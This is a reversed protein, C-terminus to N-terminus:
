CFLKPNLGFYLLHNSSNNIAKLIELDTTKLDIKKQDIQYNTQQAIENNTLRNFFLKEALLEQFIPSFIQNILNMAINARYKDSTEYIFNIPIMCPNNENIKKIDFIKIHHDNKNLYMKAQAYSMYTISGETAKLKKILQENNDFLNDPHWTSHTQDDFMKLYKHFEHAIGSNKSGGKRGLWTPPVNIVNKDLNKIINHWNNANLLEPKDFNKSIFEFNFDPNLIKLDNPLNVLIVVKDKAITMTRLKDNKWKSASPIYQSTTFTYSSNKQEISDIADQISSQNYVITNSEYGMYSLLQEHILQGINSGKIAYSTTQNGFCSITTLSIIPVFIGLLTIIKKKM